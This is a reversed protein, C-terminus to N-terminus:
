RSCRCARTLKQSWPLAVLTETLHIFDKSRIRIRSAKCFIPSKGKFILM